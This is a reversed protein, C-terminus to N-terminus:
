MGGSTGNLGPNNGVEYVATSSGGDTQAPGTVATYKTSEFAATVVYTSSASSDNCAYAYFLSASNVPDTPLTAMPSGGPINAFAVPLWGGADIKRSTSTAVASTSFRGVCTVSLGANRDSYCTPTGGRCTTNNLTGTSSAIPTTSASTLYLSLASNLTGIDTVRQTDRAQRLLEVPNLVLLTAVALIALIAIVILLELLTFGKKHHTQRGRAMDLPRVIKM